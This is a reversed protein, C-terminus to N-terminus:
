PPTLRAGRMPAQRDLSRRRGRHPPAALSRRTPSGDAAGGEAGSLSVPLERRPPHHPGRVQTSLTVGALGTTDTVKGTDLYLYEVRATLNGAFATETGAGAALGSRSSSYSATGLLLV